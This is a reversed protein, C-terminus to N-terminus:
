WRRPIVIRAFKKPGYGDIEPRPRSGKYKAAMKALDKHHIHSYLFEEAYVARLTNLDDVSNRDIEVCVGDYGDWAAVFMVRPSLPFTVQATKNMFGGDGYIRSVTNRDVHRVVPNDSTIFFGNRPTLLMWNMSYIISVLKDLPAFSALTQEKRIHMEFTSPDALSERIKKREAVGIKENREKELKEILSDFAKDNDGHAFMMIQMFKGLMEGADKRAAPTRLMTHAVFAAFDGRSNDRPPITRQLLGQYVPAAANEITGITEELSTDYSGDDRQFSYFHTQKGTEDPVASWSARRDKSYTWVQGPPQPGAFHQLHLRPIVHQGKPLSKSAAM